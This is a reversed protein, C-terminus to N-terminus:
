ALIPNGYCVGHGALIEAYNHIRQKPNPKCPLQLPNVPFKNLAHVLFRPQLNGHIDGGADVCIGPCHHPYPEPCIHCHRKGIGLQPQQQVRPRFIGAPDKYFLNPYAAM